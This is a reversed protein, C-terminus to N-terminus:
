YKQSLRQRRTVMHLSGGQVIISFVVVRYTAGFIWAGGLAAPVSLALAISLGGKLGGWTLTAIASKRQRQCLHVVGICLAVVALRVVNTSLLAAEVDHEHRLEVVDRPLADSPYSQLAVIDVLHDEALIMGILRCCAYADVGHIAVTVRAIRLALDGTLHM